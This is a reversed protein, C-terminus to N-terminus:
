GTTPPCWACGTSTRRTSCIPGPAHGHARSSDQPSPIDSQCYEGGGHFWLLIPAKGRPASPLKYGLKIDVGGHRAFTLHTLETM